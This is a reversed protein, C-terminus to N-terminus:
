ESCFVPVPLHYSSTVLIVSSFNHKTIIRSTQLANEFTTRAKDEIIHKVNSPLKHTDAYDDLKKATASSIVLYPAYGSIALDYGAKIRGSGGDFVVIIDAKGPSDSKSLIQNFYLMEIGIVIGFLLGLFFM